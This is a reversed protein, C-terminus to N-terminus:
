PVDLLEGIPVELGPAAEATLTGSTREVSRYRGAADRRHVVVRQETLDVVWYEPVGIREYLDRKTQLDVTRTGPSTVEAVLDPPTTFGPPGVDGAREPGM